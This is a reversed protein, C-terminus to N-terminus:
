FEPATRSLARYLLPSTKAAENLMDVAADIERAHIKGAEALLERRLEPGYEYEPAKSYRRMLPGSAIAAVKNPTAPLDLFEAAHLLAAPMDQLMSDFELWCVSTPGISQAAAELATMECAWAAAALHADSRLLGSPLNLRAKMREARSASLARLEKRSNEGALIGQIYARPRAFLFLATSGHGMMEPAIESVFSTAKVVAKEGPRFTRSFLPALLPTYTARDPLPLAAVDRLTRPERIALVGDLEGLLRAVLTSGVHGIHFIWRADRPADPPGAAGVARWPLYRPQPAGALIRDDLFSAARYAQRDMEVLRILGSGSDLAQALWTADRWIEDAQPVSSM